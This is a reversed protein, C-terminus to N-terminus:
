KHEVTIVLVPESAYTRPHTLISGHADISVHKYRDHVIYSQMRRHAAEITKISSDRSFMWVHTGPVKLIEALKM